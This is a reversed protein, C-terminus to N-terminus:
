DNTGQQQLHEIRELRFEEDEIIRKINYLSGGGARQITDRSSTKELENSLKIVYQPHEKYLKEGWCAACYCYDKSDDYVVGAKDPCCDAFRLQLLRIFM